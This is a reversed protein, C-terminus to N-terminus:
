LEFPFKYEDGINSIARKTIPFFFEGIKKDGYPSYLTKFRCNMSVRTENELNVVNGHPLSQNFLLFQDNNIRIWKLYTKLFEFIKKSSKYKKKKLLNLFNGYYKPKLIYMSKTNYCNVMPVWLNIEYASDGSWVDSHIPLLSTKDGPFQISLNIKQQMAIENGVIKELYHKSFNYYNFKFNKDSNLYNILKLRLNNLNQIQIIKHSNNLFQDDSYNKQYKLKLNKKIFNVTKKKLLNLKNLDKIDFILYGNKIYENFIKQDEQTNFM